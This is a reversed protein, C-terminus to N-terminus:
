NGMHRLPYRALRRLKLNQTRGGTHTFIFYLIYNNKNHKEKKDNILFINM